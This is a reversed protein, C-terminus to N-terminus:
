DASESYRVWRSVYRVGAATYPDQVGDASVIQRWSLQLTDGELAYEFEGRGGIFEPVIAFTPHITLVEEELDFRGANVLLVKYRALREEDTPSFREKFYASASSGFAWNMSYFGDSILLFSEHTQGPYRTGDPGITEAFVRQWAGDLLSSGSATQRSVPNQCACVFILASALFWGIVPLSQRTKMIMLILTQSPSRNQESLKSVKSNLYHNPNLCLILRSM